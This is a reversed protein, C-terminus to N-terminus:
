KNNSKNFKCYKIYLEDYGYFMSATLVVSGVAGSLHM